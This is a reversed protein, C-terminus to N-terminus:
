SQKNKQYRWSGIEAKLRSWYQRDLAREKEEEEVLLRQVKERNGEIASKLLPRRAAIISTIKYYQASLSILLAKVKHSLLISLVKPIPSQNM